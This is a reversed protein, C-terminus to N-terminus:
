AYHLDIVSTAIKTLANIIFEPQFTHSANTLAGQLYIVRAGFAGTVKIDQFGSNTADALNDLPAVVAKIKVGELKDVLVVVM